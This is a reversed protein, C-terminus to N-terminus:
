AAAARPSIGVILIPRRSRTGRARARVFTPARWRALPVAHPWRSGGRQGWGQAILSLLLERFLFAGACVPAELFTDHWTTSVRVCRRACYCKRRLAPSDAAIRRDAVQPRDQFNQEPSM